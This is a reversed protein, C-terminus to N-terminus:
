TTEERAYYIVLPLDYIIDLLKFPNNASMTTLVKKIDTEPLNCM